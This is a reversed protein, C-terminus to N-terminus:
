WFKNQEPNYEFGAAQLRSEIDQRSVGLDDCLADLSPYCDRLKMNIVSFLMMPDNPLEM